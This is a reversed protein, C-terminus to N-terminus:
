AQSTIGEVRRRTVPGTNRQNARADKKDIITMTRLPAATRRDPEPSPHGSQGVHKLCWMVADELIWEWISNAFRSTVIASMTMTPAVNM